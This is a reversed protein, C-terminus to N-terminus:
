RIGAGALGVKGQEILWVRHAIVVLRSVLIDDSEIDVFCQDVLHELSENTGLLAEPFRTRGLATIASMLEGADPHKEHLADFLIAWSPNLLVRMVASLTSLAPSNLADVPGIEAM